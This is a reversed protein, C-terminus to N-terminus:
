KHLILEAKDKILNPYGTIKFTLPQPLEATGLNFTYQAPYSVPAAYVMERMTHMKGTGEKFTQDLTVISNRVASKGAPIQYELIMRNPQSAASIGLQGDPGKIIQKKDTDVILEQASKELGNIGDIQLKMPGKSIDSNPFVLIMAGDINLVSKAYLGTFDNASGLLIHPSVLSFIEMSNQPSYETEVYIGTAAVYVDRIGIDQGATHITKNITLTEGSKAIANQNLTVPVSVETAAEYSQVGQILGVAPEMVSAKVMIQEPLKTYNCNWQIIQYGHTVGSLAKQSSSFFEGQGLEMDWNNTVSLMYSSADMNKNKLSYLVLIGMRDAAISDVTLIYGDKEATAGSLQKLSGAEFASIVTSDSGAVNSYNWFWELNQETVQPAQSATQPKLAESAWPLSFLLLIAIVAASVLVYRVKLSLTVKRSRTMGKRIAANLKLEAIEEAEASLSHYYEKLLTEESAAM